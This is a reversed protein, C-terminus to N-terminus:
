SVAFIRALLYAMGKLGTDLGRDTAPAPRPGRGPPSLHPLTAVSAPLLDRLPRDFLAPPSAEVGTTLM